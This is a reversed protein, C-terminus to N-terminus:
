ALEEIPIMFSSASLSQRWHLALTFPPLAHVRLAIDILIPSPSRFAGKHQIRTSTSRALRTLNHTNMLLGEARGAADTCDM